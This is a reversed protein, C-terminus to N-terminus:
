KKSVSNFLHHLAYESISIQEPQPKSRSRSHDRRTKGSQMRDVRKLTLTNDGADIVNRDGPLALNAGPSKVSSNLNGPPSTKLHLDPSEVTMPNPTLIEPGMGTQLTGNVSPQPNRHTPTSLNTSSPNRSHQAVGHVISTQRHHGYSVSPKRESTGVLPRTVGDGNSPQVRPSPARSSSQLQPQFSLNLAGNPPGM